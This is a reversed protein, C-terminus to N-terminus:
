GALPPQAVSAPVAAIRCAPHGCTAASNPSVPECSFARSTELPSRDSLDELVSSFRNHSMM